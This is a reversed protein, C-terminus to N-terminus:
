IAAACNEDPREFFFPFERRFEQTETLSRLKEVRAKSSSDVFRQGYALAKLSRECDTAFFEFGITLTKTLHLSTKLTGREREQAVFHHFLCNQFLRRLAANQFIWPAERFAWELILASQGRLM